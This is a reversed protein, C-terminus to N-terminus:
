PKFAQLPFPSHPLLVSPLPQPPDLAQLPWPHSEMGFFDESRLHTDRQASQTNISTAEITVSTKWVAPRGAEYDVTGQFRDFHGTVKGILHHIHFAVASHEPDIKYTAAGAQIGLSTLLFLLLAQKKM